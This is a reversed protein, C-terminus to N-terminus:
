IAIISLIDSGPYLLNFIPRIMEENNEYLYVTCERVNSNSSYNWAIRYNPEQGDNIFYRSLKNSRRSLENDM